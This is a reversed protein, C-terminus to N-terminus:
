DKYKGTLYAGRIKSHKGPTMIELNEVRNDTKTGNKHHVVDNKTLYRGVKREAVVRHEFIFGWDNGYKKANPHQPIFIMWYGRRKIKKRVLKAIYWEGNFFIVKKRESLDYKTKM